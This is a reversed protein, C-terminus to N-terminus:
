WHFIAMRSLKSLVFITPIKGVRLVPRKSVWFSRHTIDWTWITKWCAFMPFIKAQRRRLVAEKYLQFYIVFKNGFINSFVVFYSWGIIDHSALLGKLEPKDFLTLIETANGNGPLNALLKKVQFM